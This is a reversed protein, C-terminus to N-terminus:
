SVRAHAQTRVVNKERWPKLEAHLLIQRIREDSVSQLNDYTAILKDKLANLTWHHHGKPADTCATAIVFAEHEPTIKKPQGPRSADYIAEEIGNREQYRKRVETVTRPACGLAGVIANNTKGRHSLLLIRARTVTQAKTTGRKIVACLLANEDSSLTILIKAKKKNKKPM